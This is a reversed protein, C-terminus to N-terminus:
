KSLNEDKILRLKSVKLVKAGHSKGNKKERTQKGSLDSRLLGTGFKILVRLNV